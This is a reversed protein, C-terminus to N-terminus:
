RRNPGADADLKIKSTVKTVSDNSLAVAMAQAIQDTTRAKGELEVEGKDNANVDFKLDALKSDAQLRGKILNELADDDIKGTPATAKTNTRVIPRNATVDAEIESASLRWESMRASIDRGAERMNAGATRAADGVSDAANRTADGVNDAARRTAAATRDGARDLSEGVTTTTPTTDTTTAPPVTSDATSTRTSKNCGTLAVGAILTTFLLTNKM